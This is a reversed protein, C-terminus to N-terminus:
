KIPRRRLTKTFDSVYFLYNDIYKMKSGFNNEWINNAALTPQKTYFYGRGDKEVAFYNYGRAEPINFIQDLTITFKRDSVSCVFRNFDEIGITENETKENETIKNKNLYKNREQLIKFARICIMKEPKETLYHEIYYPTLTQITENFFLIDEKKVKEQTKEETKDETQEVIKVTGKNLAKLLDEINIPWLGTSLLVKLVGNDKDIYTIKNIETFGDNTKYKMGVYLDEVKYKKM